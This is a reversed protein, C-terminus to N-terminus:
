KNLELYEDIWGAQNAVKMKEVKNVVDSSSDFAKIYNGIPSLDVNLVVTEANNKKIMVQRGGATKIWDLETANLGIEDCYYKDEAKNNPFLIYTSINDKMELFTKNDFLTKASQVAMILIGNSKRIEAATEKLKPAFQDSELYKNLEDVFVAYPAPNELIVTKLRYFLYDAMAGLVDPNELITGTDFFTFAHDFDLADTKGNFYNGNAGNPLWSELSNRISGKGKKGFASALNDLTRDIKKLEFNQNLANSITAISEDDNRDLLGTIWNQLFAQHDQGMQLPNIKQQAATFDTYNAGIINAFIKLGYGRDFAMCKFGDFRMAQSLLFSILTTKGSDSGGIVVTNGISKPASTAHFSFNYLSNDATLFKAVPANGWSNRDLGANDAAFTVFHALNDSTIPYSRIRMNEWTPFISWFCAELNKSERLMLLKRREIMTKIELAQTNLQDISSAFIQINWVQNFLKIEDNQLREQLAQLTVIATENFNSLNSMRGVQEDIKRSSTLADEATYYQYVTFEANFKQLEKFLNKTLENPYAKISLFCSYQKENNHEYTFYNKKEPFYVDTDTIFEDFLYESTEISVSHGNLHAAWFSILQNNVILELNYEHLQAILENTTNELKDLKNIDVQQQKAVTKALLTEDKTTLILYHKTVYSSKFQTNWKDTLAKITTDVIKSKESHSKRKRVSHISLHYDESLSEFAHKRINFLQEYKEQDLADSANSHLVMVATLQGSKDIAFKKCDTLAILGFRESLYTEDPLKIDASM